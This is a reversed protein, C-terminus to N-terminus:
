PVATYRQRNEPVWWWEMNHSVGAPAAEVDMFRSSVVPLALPVTLFLYPQDDHLIEQVRDYVPKREAPDILSRGKVLLEDLEPNRYDIFNLGGPVAKSSHWVNFLDPDQPITWGMVVADFNGKDIFEKLFAAWEVTRVKVEIGVDKLNAQAITAIKIRQENGQNTLLTFSFRKGDRDLWGDGDSDRWGVEALMDRTKQPNFDYDTLKDNFMWTGPKYPGITPEGLGMLVGKILAQKDVAHALAQRVRKDAFMPLRLNWGIFNYGFSLYEFRNFNAEWEPGKTQFLYQQPTLGMFDLNGAKLELFMTSMDPIVRFVVGDLHPRGLFYDDNAELVIRRGAEWSKLKFPGAGVPERSYRTNMLNEGELIHKPLIEMAWSVLAKAYPKDYTVEFSYKGTKTFQKVLKYNESYATPTGPDIMVRYTFEVDDATLEVGDTWRIDERLKFRLLRGGDLVEYSEAAYPELEINRNYRVLSVYLLAIVDHSASDSALAPILNSPEAISGLVLLDGRQPTGPSATATAKTGAAPAASDSSDQGCGVLGCLAICLLLAINRISM